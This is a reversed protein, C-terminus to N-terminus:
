TTNEADQAHGPPGSSSYDTSVFARDVQDLWHFANEPEGVVVVRAPRRGRGKRM